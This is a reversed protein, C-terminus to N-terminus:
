RRVGGSMINAFSSVLSVFAGTLNRKAVRVLRRDMKDQTPKRPGGLRMHHLLPLLFLSTLYASYLTDYIVLPLSSERKIGLICFDTGGQIYSVEYLLMLVLIAGYPLLLSVNLVYFRDNTRAGQTNDLLRAKEILFLYIILKTSSYLCACMHIGVVCSVLSGHNTVVLMTAAASYVLSVASLAMGLYEIAV